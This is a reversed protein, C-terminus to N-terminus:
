FWASTFNIKLFLIFQQFHSIKIKIKQLNCGWSFLKLIWSIQTWAFFTEKIENLVTYGCFKAKWLGVCRPMLLPRAQPAVSDAVRGAPCVARIGPWLLASSQEQGSRQDGVKWKISGLIESRSRYCLKMATYSWKQPM